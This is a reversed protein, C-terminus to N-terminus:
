KKNGVKELIKLFDDLSILSAQHYDLHTKSLKSINKPSTLYDWEVKLFSLDYKLKNKLDKAEQIKLEIRKSEHKLITVVTLTISFLATM